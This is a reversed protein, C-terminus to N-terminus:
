ARPRLAAAEALLEVQRSWDGAALTVVVREAGIAALADLRGAVAAPGGTVLLDDVMEPPVGFLGDPDSLRHVLGDHDPLSPDGTIAVSMSGTISPARSRGAGANPGRLGASLEALRDIAPVLQEPPLPMTFWSDAHAAARALAADAMGGVIIPPVPAGPALQVPAGDVEVEKGAILDGLVALAADTRRGRDRRPVGAAAWSRDHRDGGVGVGLLLRDGSVVQLSAAQKAAWVVSRLPLIMVGYALRITSTAGAAASLAVTSDIIPVGTGSVLQDVAWVSEFGLAEAQRAAAVVDALPEHRESMTPLFVGIALDGTNRAPERDHLSPSGAWIGDQPLSHQSTGAM